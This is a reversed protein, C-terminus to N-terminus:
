AFYLTAVILFIVTLSLLYLCNYLFLYVYKHPSRVLSVDMSVLEEGLKSCRDMTAYLMLTKSRNCKLSCFRHIIALTSLTKWSANVDSCITAVDDCMAFLEADIPRNKKTTNLQNDPHKNRM